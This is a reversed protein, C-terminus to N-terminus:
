SSMLIDTLSGSSRRVGNCKAQAVPFKAIACSNIHTRTQSLFIYINGKKKSPLFTKQEVIDNIIHNTIKAAYLSDVSDRDRPVFMCTTHALKPSFARCNTPSSPFASAGRLVPVLWHKQSPRRLYM